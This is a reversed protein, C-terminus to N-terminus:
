KETKLSELKRRTESFVYGMYVLENPEEIGTEDIINQLKDSITDETDTMIGKVVETLIKNHVTTSVGLADAVTHGHRDKIINM